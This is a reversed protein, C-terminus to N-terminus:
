ALFADGFAALEEDSLADIEAEEERAKAEAEAEQQAKLAAAKEAEVDGYGLQELLYASLASITPYPWILTASLALGLGGELGNRLEMGMLSDIGLSKLPTDREIREPDVRLVKAVQGRLFGEMVEVRGQGEAGDLAAKLAEDGTRPAVSASAVLDSLLSSAAAQPYFEVWQRVNM